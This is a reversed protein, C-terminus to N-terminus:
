CGTPFSDVPPPCLLPPVQFLTSIPQLSQLHPLVQCFLRFTLKPVGDQDLYARMQSSVTSKYVLVAEKAQFRANYIDFDQLLQKFGEVHMSTCADGSLSSEYLLFLRKLQEREEGELSGGAERALAAPRKHRRRVMFEYSDMADRKTMEQRAGSAGEKVWGM